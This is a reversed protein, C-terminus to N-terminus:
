DVIDWIFGSVMIIIGIIIMIQCYVQISIVSIFFGLIMLFYRADDKDNNDYIM